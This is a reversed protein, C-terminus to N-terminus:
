HINDIYVEIHRSEKGEHLINDVMWQFTSPANCLGFQMVLPEFPRALTIFTAKKEDGERIQVNNFGWQLDMKTFCSSNTVCSIVESILPLPYWDKVM